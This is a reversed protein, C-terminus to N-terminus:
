VCRPVDEDSVRGEACMMGGANKAGPMLHAMAQRDTESANQYVEGFAVRYAEFQAIDDAKSDNPQNPGTPTTSASPPAAPRAPRGTNM